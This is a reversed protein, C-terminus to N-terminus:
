PGWPRGDCECGREHPPPPIGHMCSPRARRRRRRREALSSNRGTDEYACPRRPAATPPTRRPRLPRCPWWWRCVHVPRCNAVRRAIAPVDQPPGAYESRASLGSATRVQVHATGPAAVAGGVGAPQLKGAGVVANAGGPAAATTAAKTDSVTANTGTTGKSAKDLSNGAAAQLEPSSHSEQLWHRQNGRAQPPAACPTRAVAVAAIVAVFSECAHHTLSGIRLAFRPSHAKRAVARALPRPRLCLSGGSVMRM